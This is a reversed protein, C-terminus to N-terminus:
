REEVQPLEPVIIEPASAVPPAALQPPLIEISHRSSSFVLKTVIERGGEGASFHVADGYVRGQALGVKCRATVVARKGSFFTVTELSPALEIRYEGPGLVAGGVTAERDLRVREKSGAFAPLSVALIAAALVLLVPRTRKM